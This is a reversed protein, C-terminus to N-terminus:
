VQEHRVLAAVGDTRVVLAPEEATAVLASGMPVRQQAGGEDGIQVQLDEQVALVLRYAGPEMVAGGAQLLVVSFPAGAPHLEEGRRLVVPHRDERLAALAEDINVEKPTLGLRVVNDSTTMVELGTGSVYSHPVGAPVYLADGPFLQEVNLLPLLLAGADDPYENVGAEIAEREHAPRGAVAHHLAQVSPAIPRVQLLARIAGSRDGSFLASLAPATGPVHELILAAEDISRWGAFALFETLAVLMETKEWPDPYIQAAGPQQQAQWAQAARAADPHVQVSLPRAAALLKVLLPAQHNGWHDSLLGAGTALVAPGSPHVGFWLEAQTAGDKVGTWTALGDVIGWAYDKRSGNIVFAM